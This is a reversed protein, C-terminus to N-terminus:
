FLRRSNSEKLRQELNAPERLEPKAKDKEGEKEKREFPNKRPPPQIWIAIVILIFSLAILGSLVSSAEDAPVEEEIFAIMFAILQLLSELDIFDLM